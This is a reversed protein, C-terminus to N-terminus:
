SVVFPQTAVLHIPMVFDPMNRYRVEAVAKILQLFYIILLLKNIKITIRIGATTSITSPLFTPSLIDCIDTHGLAASAM